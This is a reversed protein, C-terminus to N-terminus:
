SRSGRKSHRALLCRLTAAADGYHAARQAEAFAEQYNRIGALVAARDLRHVREKEWREAVDEVAARLKPARDTM